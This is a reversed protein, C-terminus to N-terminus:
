MIINTGQLLEGCCVCDEDIRGDGDNDTCYYLLLWHNCQLHLLEINSTNWYNRTNESADLFNIYNIPSGIQVSKANVGKGEGEGVGRLFGVSRSFLM